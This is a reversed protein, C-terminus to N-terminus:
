HIYLRITVQYFTNSLCKANTYNSSNRSKHMLVLKQDSFIAEIWILVNRAPKCYIWLVGYSCFAKRKAQSRKINPAAALPKYKCFCCIGLTAFNWQLILFLIFLEYCPFKVLIDSIQVFHMYMKMYYRRNRIHWRDFESFSYVKM